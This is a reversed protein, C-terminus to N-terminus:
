TGYECVSGMLDWKYTVCGYCSNFHECWCIHRLENILHKKYTLRRQKSHEAKHEGSHTGAEFQKYPHWFTVWGIGGVVWEGWPSNPTNYIRKTRSM